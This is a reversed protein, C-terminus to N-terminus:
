QFGKSSMPQRRELFVCGTLSTSEPVPASEGDELLFAGLVWSGMVAAFSSGRDPSEAEGIRVRM